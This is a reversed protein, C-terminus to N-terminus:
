NHVYKSSISFIWKYMYLVLNEVATKEMEFLQHLEEEELFRATMEIFREEQLVVCLYGLIIYSSDQSDYISDKIRILEQLIKV